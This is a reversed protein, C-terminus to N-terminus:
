LSVAEHEIQQRTHERAHRLGGTTVVHVPCGLLEELDGQLAAQAFLSRREGM